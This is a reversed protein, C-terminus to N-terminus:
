LYQASQWPDLLDSPHSAFSPVCPSAALPIPTSKGHFMSKGHFIFILTPSITIEHPYKLLFIINPNSCLPNILRHCNTLFQHDVMLHFPTAWKCLFEKKWASISSVTLPHYNGFHNTVGDMTPEFGLATTIRKFDPWVEIQQINWKKHTVTRHYFSDEALCTVGAFAVPTGAQAVTYFPASFHRPCLWVQQMSPRLKWSHLRCFFAIRRTNKPQVFGSM